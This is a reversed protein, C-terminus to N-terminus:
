RDGWGPESRLQAKHQSTSVERAHVDRGMAKSDSRCGKGGSFSERCILDLSHPPPLGCGELLINSYLGDRQVSRPGAVTINTEKGCDQKSGPDEETHTYHPWLLAM